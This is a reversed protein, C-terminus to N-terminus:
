SGFVLKYNFNPVKKNLLMDWIYNNLCCTSMLDDRFTGSVKGEKNTKGSVTVKPTSHPDKPSTVVPKYRKLQEEFKAKTTQRRTKSDLSANTCIFDEMYGIAGMVFYHRTKYAAQVKTHLDTRHM